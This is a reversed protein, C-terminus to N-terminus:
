KSELKEIRQMLQSIQLKLDENTKEQSENALRLADNKANLEQVAKVLPVVFQEYSLSYLEKSNAPAKIGSFDYGSEKAAQEVEQALFGSYKVQEVDYKGPFDDTEKNGTLEAMAKISRHYTVPRLRNIFDIGKVDERIDNKIRVDSYTSWGVWGGIWGTSANGIFAQNSAANLWGYNGISITNFFSGTTGSANGIAINNDGTVNLELADYGCAVNNNGSLNSLLAYAGDAVNNGGTTNSHLTEFGNAVNNYGGLNYMLAENGDAVNGFGFINFQLAQMGTATNSNGTTNKNLASAGIAVNGEGTTNSLLAEAGDAVNVVGSTNAYLADTGTATNLHGTTNNLLARVGLASNGYGTTNANLAKWGCSTNQDGTTNVALAQDGIATNGNATTNANLAAYGIGTNGTGTTNSYLAVIGNATNGNGTTNHYLSQFGNATNEVGSTNSYLAQFGSAVNNIGTTNANLSQYGISTNQLAIEIRGALENNVRFTLPSGDTTGIFNAAPDTGSNGTLLWQSGTNGINSWIPAGPTGANYYFGPNSDTQFIMLGTAPLLILDRQQMTMRPMLMGLSDSKVDLMASTDHLSGDTNIAVQSFVPMGSILFLFFLIFLNRM